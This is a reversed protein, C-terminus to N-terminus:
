KYNKNKCWYEWTFLDPWHWTYDTNTKPWWSTKLSWVLCECLLMIFRHLVETTNQCTCQLPLLQDAQAENKCTIETLFPSLSPKELSRISICFPEAGWAKRTKFHQASIGELALPTHLIILIISFANKKWECDVLKLKLWWEPLFSLSM